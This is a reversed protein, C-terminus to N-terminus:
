GSGQTRTKSLAPVTTSSAVSMFRIGYFAATAGAPALSARRVWLGGRPSPVRDGNLGKAIARPSRGAIYEAFIRRIVAAERDDVVRKGRVLEGKADLERIVRYGYSLGGPSSGLLAAGTQGRRIKRGLDKLFLANMTGKLGIHLENIEGDDVALLKVGAFVIRKRIHAIDEQDRSLRDLSEILVADFHGSRCDALLRRVEPRTAALDRRGVIV